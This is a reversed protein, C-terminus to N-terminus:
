GPLAYMCALVACASDRCDAILVAGTMVTQMCRDGAGTALWLRVEVPLQYFVSTTPQVPIPPRFSNGYRPWWAANAPDTARSANVLHAITHLWAWFFFHYALHRHMKLAEDFPIVYQLPTTRLYTLLNRSVTFFFLVLIVQPM